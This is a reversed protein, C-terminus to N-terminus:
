ILINVIKNTVIDNKSRFGTGDLYKQDSWHSEGQESNDTTFILHASPM